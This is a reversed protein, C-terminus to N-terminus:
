LLSLLSHQTAHKTENIKSWIPRAMRVKRGISPSWQPVWSIGVVISVGVLVVTLLSCTKHTPRINSNISAKNSQTIKINTHIIHLKIYILNFTGHSYKNIVFSRQELILLLRSFCIPFMTGAYHKKFRVSPAKFLSVQLKRSMVHLFIKVILSRQLLGLFM